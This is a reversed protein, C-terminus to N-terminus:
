QHEAKRRAIIIAVAGLVLVAGAIYFITTGIGGTSPLQAGASNIVDQHVFDTKGDNLTLEVHDNLINYGTPAKTEVLYYKLDLDLGKITVTNGNTTITDTGTATDDETKLRYTKGAEIEILQIWGSTSEKTNASEKTLKFEAGTLMVNNKDEKDFTVDYTKTNVTVPVAEYVNGYNLDLTNPIGTEIAADGNVMVDVEVTITQDETKGEVLGIIQADTYTITFKTGKTPDSADVAVADSVSGTIPSQSKVQKFTLGPSMTDTLVIEKNATVPVTVTLTYTIVKGIEANKDEDPITKTDSTYTNKENITVPSLTQVAIKSGLSSTIYYYGADVNGSEASTETATKDFTVKEFKSLDFTTASFAAILADATTSADKLEVFWKNTEGVRVINFLGTETLETVRAETTVYYAVAGDTTTAGDLGVKPDTEISAELIRYAVYDIAVNATDDPNQPNITISPTGPGDAAFAVSAVSLTLMLALVLAVLTNFQKLEKKWGKM